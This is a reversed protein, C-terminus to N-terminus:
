VIYAKAKALDGESFGPFRETLHQSIVLGIVADGLFELRENSAHEADAASRHTLANALLAETKFSVGLLEQLRVIPSM